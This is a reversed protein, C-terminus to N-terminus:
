LHVSVISVIGFTIDAYKSPPFVCAGCYNEMFIFSLNIEIETSKPSPHRRLVPSMERCPYGSPEAQIRVEIVYCPVVCLECM